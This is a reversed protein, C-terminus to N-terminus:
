RGLARLLQARAHELALRKEFPVCSQCTRKGCTIQSCLSCWGRVTGSGPRVRFHLGCHCCQATSHEERVAGTVTDTVLIYGAEKRRTHHLLHM